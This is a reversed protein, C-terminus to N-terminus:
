IANLAQELDQLLDEIDEIGASLRVLDDTIGLEARKEAPISAHTMMAPHNALSEVGGLSEALTFVRLNELFKVSDEKKGSKFTFSVMGGFDKMQKKALDNQPHSELGPYFVHEIAPHKELFQAVKIGNESHRQMRLALTKIGRLVLYSDHPGLIGGSAFQIFHLKEGLQETKAVLAGAVVDSHGGLYKTASHMIIDAGLDLPQQLYPSAFTNDVALLIDKGQILDAVAKIDVLKMLPNTPTELWILKTKDNILEAIKSVDDFNVFTFKLQYKQFLRTFMRYTGGYLDDVAIVEDGPNLLKLVCDIAALGSGFALGRAGNEISALADELAQRTPNAGRSYEYGARLQGPSKQAFTSTLFVPVNVSGTHPEAHQNGHIVKTNFKM